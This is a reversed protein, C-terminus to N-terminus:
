LLSISFLVDCCNFKSKNKYWNNDNNILKITIFSGKNEVCSGLVTGFLGDTVIPVSFFTQRSFMLSLFNESVSISYLM